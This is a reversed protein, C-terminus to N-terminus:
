IAVFFRPGCGALELVASYTRDSPGRLHVIAVVIVAVIVDVSRSDWVRWGALLSFGRAGVGGGVRGSLARWEWEDTGVDNIWV